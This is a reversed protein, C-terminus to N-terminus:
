HKVETSKFMFMAINGIDASYERILAEDDSEYALVLKNYHYEIERLIEPRNEKIAFETWDGKHENEKIEKQMRQVFSDTLVAQLEDRQKLLESPLLGCSQITNGADAFLESNAKCEEPSVNEANIHAIISEGSIVTSLTFDSLRTYITEFKGKTGKFETNM